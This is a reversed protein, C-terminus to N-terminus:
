MGCVYHCDNFSHSNFIIVRKKRNNEDYYDGEGKPM